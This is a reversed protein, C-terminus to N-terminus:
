NTPPDMLITECRASIMSFCPKGNLRPLRVGTRCCGTIQIAPGPSASGLTVFEQRLRALGSEEVLLTQVDIPTTSCLLWRRDTFPWRSGMTLFYLGALFFLGVLVLVVKLARERIM